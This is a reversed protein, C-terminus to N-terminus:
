QQPWGYWGGPDAHHEAWRRGLDVKVGPSRAILAEALKSFGPGTMTQMSRGDRWTFVVSSTAFPTEVDNPRRRGTLLIRDLGHSPLRGSRLVSRWRLEDGDLSIAWATRFLLIYASLVAGAAFFVRSAYWGIPGAGLVPFGCVAFLAFVLPMVFLFVRPSLVPRYTLRTSV